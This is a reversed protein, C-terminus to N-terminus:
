RNMYDQNRQRDEPSGTNCGNSKRTFSHLWKVQFHVPWYNSSFWQITPKGSNWEYAGLVPAWIGPVIYDGRAIRINVGLQAHVQALFDTQYRENTAIYVDSIESNKLVAYNLNFGLGYDLHTKSTMKLLRHATLRGYVYGNYFQATGEATSVTAGAADLYDITTKEKGGIYDFGLGWDIYHVISKKLFAPKKMRYHVMGIDIFGGLRGSPDLTYNYRNGADAPSEITPNSLRTFTYNPGLTIQLGFNRMESLSRSSPSGGFYDSRRKKQKYLSQASIGGSFGLVLAALILNRM